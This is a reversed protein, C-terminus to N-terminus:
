IISILSLKFTLTKGAMPHNCDVLVANDNIEVITGPCTEEGEEAVEVTDGISPEDDLDLMELPVELFRDSYVPGFAQKPKLVVTRTEGPSMKMLQAELAPLLDEAGITIQVPAETRELETGDEDLCIYSITAKDGPKLRTTNM